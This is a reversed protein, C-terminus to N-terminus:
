APINCKGKFCREHTNAKQKFGLPLGFASM